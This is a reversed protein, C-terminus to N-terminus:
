SKDRPWDLLQSTDVKIGFRGVVTDQGELLSDHNAWTITLPLSVGKTIPIELGGQVKVNTTDATDPVHDFIDIAAALSADLGGAKFLDDLIPRSYKLGITFMNSGSKVGSNPIADMSTWDFNGTFDSWTARIGGGLSNPGFEQARQVGTLVATIVLQRDIEEAASKFSENATSLVQIPDEVKRKFWDFQLAARWSDNAICGPHGDVELARFQPDTLFRVITESIDMAKVNSKVANFLREYNTKERRDRSGVIQARAEWTVIDTFSSSTLADDKTGDGDRDFSIGKGGFSVTAGIRRMVEYQFLEYRTQDYYVEPDYAAAFLFPSANATVIGDDTGQASGLTQDFAASLLSAFGVSDVITADSGNASPASDQHNRATFHPVDRIAADTVSSVRHKVQEELYDGLLTQTPQTNAPCDTEGGAPTHTAFILGLLLGAALAKM